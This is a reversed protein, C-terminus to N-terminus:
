FLERLAALQTETLLRKPVRLTWEAGVALVLVQSSEAARCLEFPVFGKVRPSEALFGDKLFTVSVAQRLESRQEYQAAAKVRRLMPWLLYDFLVVFVALAVTSWVTFEQLWSFYQAAAAFLVLLFCCVLSWGHRIGTLTSDAYEEKTLLIQLSVNEM